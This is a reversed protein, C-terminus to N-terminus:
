FIIKSLILHIKLIIKTNSWGGFSLPWLWDGEALILLIGEMFLFILLDFQDDRYM